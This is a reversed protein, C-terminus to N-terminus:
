LSDGKKIVRGRAFWAAQKPKYEAELYRKNRVIKCAPHFYWPQGKDRILEEGDVFAIKCEPCIRARKSIRAIEARVIM